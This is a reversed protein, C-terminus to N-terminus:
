VLYRLSAIISVIIDGAMLGSATIGNDGKLYGKKDVVYAIAGGVLIAASTSVPLMLGIAVTVASLKYRYLIIAIVVGALIM